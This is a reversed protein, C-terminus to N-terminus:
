DDRNDRDDRDAYAAQDTEFEIGGVMSATVNYLLGGIVGGVFGMVGFIVPFLIVMGLGLAGMMGAGAAGGGRPGAVVGMGVVMVAFVGGYLLGFIAYLIGAVKGVSLSDVSKIIM